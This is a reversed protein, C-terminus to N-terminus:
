SICSGTVIKIGQNFVTKLRVQYKYRYMKVAANHALLMNQAVIYPETASNGATCNGFGPSCRGPAHIGVDYGLYCTTFPENISTWYKVRDGFSRFCEEAFIGFDKRAFSFFIDSNLDIKIYKFPAFSNCRHIKRSTKAVSDGM